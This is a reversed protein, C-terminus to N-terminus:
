QAGETMNNGAAITYLSNLHAAWHQETQRCSTETQSLAFPFYIVRPHLCNLWTKETSDPTIDTHQNRKSLNISHNKGHAPSVLHTQTQTRSTSSTRVRKLSAATSRVSLRPTSSTPTPRASARNTPSACAQPPTLPGSLLSVQAPCQEWPSVAYLQLSLSLATSINQM